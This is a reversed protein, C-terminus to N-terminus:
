TGERHLAPDTSLKFTGARHPQLGFARWIRNVTSRSVGAREGMTRISLHTAGKPTSELTLTVMREVQADSVKRPAGPRPDDLLGDLRRVVFRSRWKGVTPESIGLEEAVATNTFGDACRLVICARMALDQATKPRRVYRELTDKEEESLGLLPKPRGTRM